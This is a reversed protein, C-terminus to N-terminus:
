IPWELHCLLMLGWALLPMLTWYRMWMTRGASGVTSWLCTHLPSTYSKNISSLHLYNTCGIWVTRGASGVTRWVCTYLLTTYSKNISSLHLYNTCGIWVTRGASGVTRLVCTHLPTTFSKNISSLHLYAACECLGKLIGSQACFLCFCQGRCCYVLLSLLIFL